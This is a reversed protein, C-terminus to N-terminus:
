PRAYPWSRTPYDASAWASNELTAGSTASSLSVPDIPRFAAPDEPAGRGFADTPATVIEECFELGPLVENLLGAGGGARLRVVVFITEQQQNTLHTESEAM